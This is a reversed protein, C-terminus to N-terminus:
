YIIKIDPTDSEDYDTHVWLNGLNISYLYRYSAPNPFDYLVEVWDSSNDRKIYVHSISNSPIIFFIDISLLCGFPCTWSLNQFVVSNVVNIIVTDKDTLGFSDTVTLEFEYIGKKLNTVKTALSDPKELIYDAPGEIKKWQYRVINSKRDVATGFLLTSNAPLYITTDNGANVVPATNGTIPDGSPIEKKCNTNILILMATVLCIIFLNNKMVILYNIKYILFVVWM